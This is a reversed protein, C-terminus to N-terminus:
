FYINTALKIVVFLVEQNFKDFNLTIYTVRSTLVPLKKYNAAVLLINENCNKDGCIYSPKAM